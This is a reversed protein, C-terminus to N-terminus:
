LFKIHPLVLTVYMDVHPLIVVLHVTHICGLMVTTMILGFCLRSKAVLQSKRVLLNHLASM